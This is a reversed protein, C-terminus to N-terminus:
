EVMNDCRKYLDMILTEDNYVQSYEVDDQENDMDKEVDAPTGMVSDEEIPKEDMDELLDVLDLDESNVLPMFM